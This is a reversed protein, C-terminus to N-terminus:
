ANSPKTKSAKGDANRRWRGVKFNGDSTSFTPESSSISLLTSCSDSSQREGIDIVDALSMEAEEAFLWCARPDNYSEGTKLGCRELIVIPAAHMLDIAGDAQLVLASLTAFGFQVDQFM